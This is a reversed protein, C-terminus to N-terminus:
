SNGNDCGFKILVKRYEEMTDIDIIVGEDTVPVLSVREPYRKIIDRLTGGSYIDELLSKPLLVPHGKKTEYRPIFIRDPEQCHRAALLKITEASVLPQDALSVLVGISSKDVGRLGTRLSGAMDSEQIPNFVIYVPLRNVVRITDPDGSRLVVVIDGIGSALLADLSHRIIPKGKLPLLQKLRGTRRSSGAALLIASVQHPM